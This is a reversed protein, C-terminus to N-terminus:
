LQMGKDYSQDLVEVGGEWVMVLGRREEGESEKVEQSAVWQYMGYVTQTWLNVVNKVFKQPIM